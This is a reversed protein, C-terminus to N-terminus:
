IGKLFDVLAAVTEAKKDWRVNHGAGSGHAMVVPPKAGGTRWCHIRIGSAMVDGEAWGAPPPPAALALAILFLTAAFALIRNMMSDWLADASIGDSAAM